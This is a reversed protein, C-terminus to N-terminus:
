KHQKVLWCCLGPASPPPKPTEPDNQQEWHVIRSWVRHSLPTEWFTIESDYKVLLYHIRHEERSNNVRMAKVTQKAEDLSSTKPNYSRMWTYWLNEESTGTLITSLSVAPLVRVRSTHCKIVTAWIDLVIEWKFFSMNNYSQMNRCSSSSLCINWKLWTREDAQENLVILNAQTQVRFAYLKEWVKAQM